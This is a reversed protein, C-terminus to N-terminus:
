PILIQLVEIAILIIIIWELSSNHRHELMSRFLDLNEKVVSLNNQLGHYRGVFELEISLSNDLDSLEKDSWALDSTEFIFLNESIRNKLLMTKGIYQNLKSARMTITGKAELEKAIHRTSELLQSVKQHYHDLAVSQSLNLMIIHAIDDTLEKIQIDNFSVKNEKNPDIKIKYNETPQYEINPLTKFVDKYLVGLEEKSYGIFVVSGYDKFYIYKNGKEKYLISSMEQKFPTIEFLSKIQNLDILTGAHFANTLVERM